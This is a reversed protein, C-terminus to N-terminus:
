WYVNVASVLFMTWLLASCGERQFECTHVAEREEAEVGMCPIKAERYEKGENRTIQKRREGRM